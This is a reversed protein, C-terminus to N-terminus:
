FPLKETREQIKYVGEPYEYMRLTERDMLLYIPHWEKRKLKHPTLKLLRVKNDSLLKLLGKDNAFLEFPLEEPAEELTFFMQSSEEVAGSGKASYLDLEKEKANLRSTQSVVIFPIKTDLAFEKIAQAVDTSREFDSKGMSRILQFYDLAVFKARKGTLHECVRIYPVILDINVRKVISVLGGKSWKDSIEKVNKLFEADQKVFKKQTEYFPLGTELQIIREMLQFESNELSFYPIITENSLNNRLLNLLFATKGANTRAVISVVEGAQISHIMKDLAPFGTLVKNYHCFKAHDPYVKLIESMKFVTDISLKSYKNLLEEVNQKSFDISM